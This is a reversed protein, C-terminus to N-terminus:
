PAAGGSNRAAARRARRAAARAANEELRRRVVRAILDYPIPEDLPFKLNGKPGAYPAVDRLLADDGGVPPYLGVHRKFAAVYVVPGNWVFVPMRYAIAEGAEPAERRVTARIAELIARVDDPFGAIYADVSRPAAQETTM